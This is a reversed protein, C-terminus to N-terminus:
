KELYQLVIKDLLNKSDWIAAINEEKMIEQM